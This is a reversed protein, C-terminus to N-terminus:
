AWRPTEAVVQCEDAYVIKGPKDTKVVRVQVGHEQLLAVLEWMHKVPEGADDRFWSVADATWEGSRRKRDFPPCPLHANFWEFIEELWDSEYAYLQGEDRLKRAVTFLGTLWYANEAETGVVFRLFM